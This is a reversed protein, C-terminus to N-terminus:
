WWPESSVDRYIYYVIYTYILLFVSYVVKLIIFRAQLVRLETKIMGAVAICSFLNKKVMVITDSKIM